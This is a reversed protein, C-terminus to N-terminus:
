RFELWAGHASGPAVFVSDSSSSAATHHRRGGIVRLAAARDRVRITLGVIPRGAVIQHEAPLMVVAGEALRAVIADAPEPVHVRAREFRAGTVELLRRLPSHDASAIWVAVLSMATNAHAFHEPRDTPSGNRAGFFLWPLPGDDSMSVLGGPPDLAFGADALAARIRSPPPTFLALFAPGDGQELHRRYVRTLVDVAKPATILEIETGDPFKAHLNSIGNAHPRGPKLVFGLDRWTRAAAELDSVAVPVHDVGRVIATQPTSALQADRHGLGTVAIAACLITSPVRPSRGHMGGYYWRRRVVDPITELGHRDGRM